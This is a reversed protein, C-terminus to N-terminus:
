HEWSDILESAGGAIGLMPGTEVYAAASVGTGPLYRRVLWVTQRDVDLAYANVQLGPTALVEAHWRDYLSRALFPLMGGPVEMTPLTRSTVLSEYAAEVADVSPANSPVDLQVVAVDFYHSELNKDRFVLYYDGTKAFSGISINANTEDNADDNFAIVNFYIDTLWAMADGQTSRVYLELQSGAQAHFKVARYRPTHAYLIRRSFGVDITGVVRTNSYPNSGVSIESLNTFDDDPDGAIACASSVLTLLAALFWGSLRYTKM